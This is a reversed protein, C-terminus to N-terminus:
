KAPAFELGSVKVRPQSMNWASSIHEFSVEFDRRDGPPLPPTPPAFLTRVERQAIQDLQDSFEVTFEVSALSKNGGNVVQGALTTVEQHLFNEARSITLNDFSVSTAYARQEPPLSTQSQSLPAPTPTKTALRWFFFALVVVIVLAVLVIIRRTSGQPEPDPTQIPPSTAM